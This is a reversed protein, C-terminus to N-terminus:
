CPNERGTTKSACLVPIFGRAGSIQDIVAICGAWPPEPCPGALHFRFAGPKESEMEWTFSGMEPPPIVRFDAPADPPFIVGANLTRDGEGWVILPPYCALRNQPPLPLIRTRRTILTEDSDVVVNGQRPGACAAPPIVLFREPADHSLVATQPPFPDLGESRLMVRVPRTGQGQVHVTASQPDAPSTILESTLAASWAHKKLRLRLKLRGLKIVAEEPLSAFYNPEPRLVLWGESASLEWPKLRKAMSRVSYGDPNAIWIAPAHSIVSQAGEPDVRVHHGHAPLPHLGDRGLDRIGCFWIEERPSERSVTPLVWIGERSDWDPVIRGTEILNSLTKRQFTYFAPEELCPAGLCVSGAEGIRLETERQGARPHLRIPGPVPVRPPESSKLEVEVEIQAAPPSPPNIQSLVHSPILDVEPRLLSTDGLSQFYSAPCPPNGPMM